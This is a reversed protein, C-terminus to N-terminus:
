LFAAEVQRDHHHPRRNTQLIEGRRAEADEQTRPRGSEFQVAEGKLAIVGFILLLFYYPICYNICCNRVYAHPIFVNHSHLSLYLSLNTFLHNERM